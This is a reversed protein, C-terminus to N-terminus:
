FDKPKKGTVSSFARYFGSTSGFGCAFAADIPRAGGQILSVAREVRCRIIYEQLTVGTYEKFIRSLYSPSIYLASAISERSLEEDLHDNLYSLAECVTQYSARGKMASRETHLGILRSVTIVMATIRNCICENKYPLEQAVEERISAFAELLQRFYPETKPLLSIRGKEFFRDLCGQMPYVTIPLFIVQEMILPDPSTVKEIYRIDKRSFVLIDDREVYFVEGNINWEGAGSLVHVFKLEDFSVPFETHGAEKKTVRYQFTISEM